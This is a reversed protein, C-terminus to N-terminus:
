FYNKIIKIILFNNHNEFSFKKECFVFFLILFNLFVNATWKPNNNSM